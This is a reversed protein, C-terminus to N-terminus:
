RLLTVDGTYIKTFGDIFLVEVVYVYVGTQAEQNRFDGDWSGRMPDDTPFDRDSFVVEGWRNYVDISRVIEVDQGGRITFTQNLSNNSNPNFANPIAILRPNTVQILLENTASCGFEDTVTISYQTTGLPRVLEDAGVLTDGQFGSVSWVFNSDLDISSQASISFSDGLIIEEVPENNIDVGLDSIIDVTLESVTEVIVETNNTCGNADEVLLDYSGSELNGFFQATTFNGNDLSFRYPLRGGRDRICM